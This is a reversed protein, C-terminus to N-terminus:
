SGRQQSALEGLNSAVVTFFDFGKNDSIGIRIELMPLIQMFRPYIKLNRLKERNKLPESLLFLFASSSVIFPLSWTM